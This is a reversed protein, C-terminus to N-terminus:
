RGGMGSSHSFFCTSHASRIRTHQDWSGCLLGVNACILARKSLICTPYPLVPVNVRLPEFLYVKTQKEKTACNSFGQALFHYVRADSIRTLWAATCGKHWEKQQCHLPAQTCAWVLRPHDFWSPLVRHVSSETNRQVTEISCGLRLSLETSTVRPNRGNGQHSENTNGRALSTSSSQDKTVKSSRTPHVCIVDREISRLTLFGFPCKRLGVFRRARNQLGFVLRVEFVTSIDVGCVRKAVYRGLWM